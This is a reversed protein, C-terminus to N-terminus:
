CMLYISTLRYLFVTGIYSISVFVLFDHLKLFFLILLIEFEECGNISFYIFQCTPLLFALSCRLPALCTLPVSLLCHKIVLASSSAVPIVRSLLRTQFRAFNRRSSSTIFHQASFMSVLCLMLSRLASSKRSTPSLAQPRSYARPKPASETAVVFGM